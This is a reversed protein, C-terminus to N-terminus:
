LADQATKKWAILVRLLIRYARQEEPQETDNVLQKVKTIDDMLDLVWDESM